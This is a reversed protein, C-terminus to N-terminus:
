RQRQKQSSTAYGGAAPNRRLCWKSVSHQAVGATRSATAAPRQGIGRRPAM